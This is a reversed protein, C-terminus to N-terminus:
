RCGIEDSLDSGGTGCLAVRCSSSVRATRMAQAAGRVRSSAIQRAAAEVQGEGVRLVRVLAASRRLSSSPSDDDRVEVAVAPPLTSARFGPLRPSGTSALRVRAGARQAGEHRGLNVNPESMSTRPVVARLWRVWRGERFSPDAAFESQGQM